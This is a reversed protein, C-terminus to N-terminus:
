QVDRQDGNHLQQRLDLPPVIGTSRSERAITADGIRQISISPLWALSSPSFLKAHGLAAGEKGARGRGGGGKVERGEHRPLTRGAVTLARYEFNM